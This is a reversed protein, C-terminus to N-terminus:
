PLAPPRERPADDDGARGGGRLDGRDPRRDASPDEGGGVDGRLAGGPRRYGTQLCAECGKARYLRHVDRYEEGLERRAEEGPEYAERCELCLRRALRQAIICNLSPALLGPDVGMDKLRVISSSASQAHLTSLVLHGTTAAQMAIRATEEDRIEGVLIVDPDSRLITRLGRAFTLGASPDIEIQGVGPM